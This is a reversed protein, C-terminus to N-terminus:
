QPPLWSFAVPGQGDAGTHAVSALKPLTRDLLIEISRIQGAELSIKGNANDELRKVLQTTQIKDRIYQPDFRTKRAAM